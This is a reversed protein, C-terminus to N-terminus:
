WGEVFSFQDSVHAIMTSQSSPKALPTGATVHGDFVSALSAFQHRCAPFGLLPRVIKKWRCTRSFDPSTYRENL